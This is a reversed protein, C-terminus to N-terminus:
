FGQGTLWASVQERLMPASRELTIAHGTNPLKLTTLGAASLYRQQQLDCSLPPFLADNDACVLLVPVAIRGVGLQNVLLTTAVSNLDGCPDRERLATVAAVVTPDADHFMAQQFDADSQGFNAYGDASNLCAQGSAAFTQVSFLSSAQDVWAMILLADIGTFSYAAVEATDGGASHGALAIKQFAIPNGGDAQAYSGAKLQGIVQHAMDAQAGICTASGDALKSDGHGLRDIAVSVHGLRAMETAYDYGPVADFRWFWGAFGLGHLYLTAAKPDARDFATQPGVIHGHIEYTQGDAQCPVLSGNRNIVTFVVPVAVADDRPAAVRGQEGNSGCAALGLLAPACLGRRRRASAANTAGSMTDFPQPLNM